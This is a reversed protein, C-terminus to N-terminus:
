FPFKLTGSMFYHLLILLMMLNLFFLTDFSLENEKKKDFEREHAKWRGISEGVRKREVLYEERTIETFENETCYKEFKIKTDAIYSENYPTAYYVI